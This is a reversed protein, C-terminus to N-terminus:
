KSYVTVSLTDVAVFATKASRTRIDYTQDGLDYFNMSVSWVRVGDIDEYMSPDSYTCTNGDKMLQIKTVGVGTTFTLENVGYYIVGDVDDAIDFSKVSTDPAPVTLTVTACNADWAAGFKAYVSYTQEDAYVSLAINWIEYGDSETVSNVNASDPTLTVTGGGADVFRIKNASGKVTVDLIAQERDISVVQAAIIDDTVIEEVEVDFTGVPEGTEEDTATNDCEVIYTEGADLTVTVDFDLNDSYAEISGSGGVYGDCNYIKIEPNASDALTSRFRYKGHRDPVFEFADKHHVNHKDGPKMNELEAGEVTVTVASPTFLDVLDTFGFDSWLEDSKSTMDAIKISIERGKKANLYTIETEDANHSKVIPKIYLTHYYKEETTLVAGEGLNNDTPDGCYVLVEVCAREVGAVTVKYNGSASPTFKLIVEEDRSLTLTKTEGLAISTDQAAFAVSMFSFAFLVTLLLSVVKKM